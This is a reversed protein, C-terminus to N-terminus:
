FAKKVNTEKVDLLFCVRKIDNRLTVGEFHLEGDDAGDNKWHKSRCRIDLRLVLMTLYLLVLGDDEADVSNLDGLTAQGECGGCYCRCDAVLDGEDKISATV